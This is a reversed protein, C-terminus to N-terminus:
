KVTTTLAPDSLIDSAKGVHELFFEKFRKFNTQSFHREVFHNAGKLKVAIENATVIQRFQEFTLGYSAVERIGLSRRNRNGSSGRGSFKVPEGDVLLILSEGEPIFLWESSQYDVMLSYKPERNPRQYKVANLYVSKADSILTRGALLNNKMRTVTFNDFNDDLTTVKYNSGSSCSTFSLCIILFVERFM